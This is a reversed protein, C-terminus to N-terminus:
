ALARGVIFATSNPAAGCVVSGVEFLLISSLMVAKVPYFTYIKGFLLQFACCTLLYASGYWGVDSLSDFENTIQPIATSIITRDLAVLFMTMMISVLLLVVKTTSQEQYADDQDSKARKIEEDDGTESRQTNNIDSLNATPDGKEPSGLSESETM